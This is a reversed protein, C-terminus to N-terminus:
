KILLVNRRGDKGDCVLFDYYDWETTYRYITCGDDSAIKRLLLPSDVQQMPQPSRVRREEECGLMLAAPAIIVLFLIVIYIMKM